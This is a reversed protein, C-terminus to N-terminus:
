AAMSINEIVDIQSQGDVLALDFRIMTEPEGSQKALYEAGTNLIRNFQTPTLRQAALAHTKAKKVEIFVLGDSNRAILDIEGGSGRWRQAVIPCGLDRYRRAVAEEAALGSLYATKGKMQKHRM